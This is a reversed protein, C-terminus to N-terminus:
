KAARPPPAANPGVLSVTWFDSALKNDILYSYPMYFYGAAGWAKGWSNRCIFVNSDDDYGVALVAHGGVPTDTGTPLPVKGTKAVESTEFSSYVTFGFVFPYQTALCGKLDALNQAVSRYTLAEYKQADAYCSASPKTAAKAGAPFTGDPNAPTGDYPWEAEPCAGVKSVSKIGDRLQAGADSGVSGEIVRENYYIFLRSPVFIQKAKQKMLDFELAGAIANATCSGIQEQDYVPPCHRRLDIRPPINRAIPHPVSFTLDRQDPIDPKWGYRGIKRAVAMLSKPAAGHSPQRRPASQEKTAM